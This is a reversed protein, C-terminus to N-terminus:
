AAVLVCGPSDHSFRCRRLLSLSWATLGLLFTSPEPVAASTANSQQYNSSLLVFDAFDVHGSGNADGDSWGGSQGFNASLALFDDFQVKGDLNADGPLSTALERIWSERDHETVLGDGTVDFEIPHTGETAAASLLDIDGATILGDEDFDGRLFLGIAVNDLGFLWGETTNAVDARWRIRLSAGSPITAPLLGNEYSVRNAANNGDLIEGEPLQLTADTTVKGLDLIEEFGSGTDVDVSVNFAAEGPVSRERINGWAEIDFALQLTNANANAVKGLFQLVPEKSRRPVYVALARDADEESGANFVHPEDGRVRNTPFSQTTMNGHFFGDGSTATWGKPLVIDSSADAGLVFDFDQTYTGGNGDITVPEFPMVDVEWMDVANNHGVSYYLTSGDPALTMRWAEAPVNISRPLFVPDQFEDDLSARTAVHVGVGGPRLSDLFLSLGDPSLSGMWDNSSSNIGPGLNVPDGWPDMVSERKSVYIDNGGLGGARNSGFYMSLGDPTIFPSDDRAGSNIPAALKAPTGWPADLSARTSMWIDDGFYPSWGDAFYLELGDSSITSAAVPPGISDILAPAQWPSDHSDRETSYLRRSGSRSSSFYMTLGDSSLVASEDRLSSNIPAGLKRPIGLLMEAAAPRWQVVATLLLGFFFCPKFFSM